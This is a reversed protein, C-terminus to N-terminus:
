PFRYPVKPSISVAAPSHAFGHLLGFNVRENLFDNSRIFRRMAGSHGGFLCKFLCFPLHARAQRSLAALFRNM